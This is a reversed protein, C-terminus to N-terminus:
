RRFVTRAAVLGGAVAVVVLGLISTGPSGVWDVATASGLPLDFGPALHIPVLSTLPLLLAVVITNLALVLAVIRSPYHGRGTIM